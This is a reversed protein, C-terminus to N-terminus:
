NNSNHEEDTKLERKEICHLNFFHILSRVSICLTTRALQPHHCLSTLSHQLNRNSIVVIM